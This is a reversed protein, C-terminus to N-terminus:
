NFFFGLFCYNFNFYLGNSISALRNSNRNAAAEKENDMLKFLTYEIERINTELLDADVFSGRKTENADFKYERSNMVNPTIISSSDASSISSDNSLNQIDYSKNLIFKSNSNSSRRRTSVCNMSQQFYNKLLSM